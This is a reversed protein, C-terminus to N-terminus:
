KDEEIPQYNPCEIKSKTARSSRYGHWNCLVYIANGIRNPRSCFACCRVVREKGKNDIIIKACTKM